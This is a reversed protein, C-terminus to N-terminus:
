LRLSTASAALVAGAGLLSATMTTLDGLLVGPITAWISSRGHKLAYSVALIVTPGPVILLASSALIFALWVDLTM